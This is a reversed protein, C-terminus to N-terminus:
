DLRRAGPMYIPKINFYNTEKDFMGAAMNYYALVSTFIGFWGGVKLLVPSQYFNHLSLTLFTISLLVFMSFLSLTARLCTITVFVSLIFWIMLYIGVAHAFEVPDDFSNAIGFWEIFIACYSWWFASYATFVTGAFQEELVIAWMGTVFQMLGGYFFGVGLIISSNSVGKAGVNYLSLLFTCSAFASLGLPAPNIFRRKSKVTLQPNMTGGFAAQLESRHYTHDGLKIYVDDPGHTEIRTINTTLPIDKSRHSINGIQNEEDFTM